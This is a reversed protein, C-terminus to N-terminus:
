LLVKSTKVLYSMVSSSDKMYSQFGAKSLISEGKYELGQKKKYDVTHVHAFLDRLALMREITKSINKPVRTFKKVVAVKYRAPLRGLVDDYFIHYRKIRGFYKVKRWKESDVLVFHMIALATLEEVLACDLLVRARIISDREIEDYLAEPFPSDDPAGFALERLEAIERKLRTSRGRTLETAM